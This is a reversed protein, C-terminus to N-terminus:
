SECLFAKLRSFTQKLLWWIGSVNCNWHLDTAALNSSTYRGYSGGLDLYVLVIEPFLFLLSPFHFIMAKDLM